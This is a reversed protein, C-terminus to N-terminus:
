YLLRQLAVRARFLPFLGERRLARKAAGGHSTGTLIVPADRVTMQRTERLFPLKAREADIEIDVDNRVPTVLHDRDRLGRNAQDSQRPKGQRQCHRQLRPRPAPMPFGSGPM